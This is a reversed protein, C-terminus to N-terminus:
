IGCGRPHAGVPVTHPHQLSGHLYIHVTTSVSPSPVVFGLVQVICPNDCRYSGVYRVSQYSSPSYLDCWDWLCKGCSSLVLFAEERTVESTIIYSRKSDYCGCCSFGWCCCGTSRTHRDWEVGLLTGEVYVDAINVPCVSYEHSPDPDRRWPHNLDRSCPYAGTRMWERRSM